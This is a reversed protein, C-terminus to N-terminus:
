KVKVTSQFTSNSEDQKIRTFCEHTIVMLNNGNGAIKQITHTKGQDSRPPHKRPKFPEITFDLGQEM